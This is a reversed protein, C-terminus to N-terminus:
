LDFVFRDLAEDYDFGFARANDDHRERLGTRFEDLRARNSKIEASPPCQDAPQLRVQKAECYRGFDVVAHILMGEWRMYELKRDAWDLHRTTKEIVVIDLVIGELVNFGVVGLERWGKAVHGGLEDAVHEKYNSRLAIICDTLCEAFTILSGLAGATVPLLRYDDASISGGNRVYEPFYQSLPPITEKEVCLLFDRLVHRKVEAFEM